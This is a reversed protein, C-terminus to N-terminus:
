HETTTKSKKNQKDIIYNGTYVSTQTQLQGVRCIYLISYFQILNYLVLRM